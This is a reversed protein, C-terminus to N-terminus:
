NGSKLICISNNCSFYTQETDNIVFFIDVLDEPNSLFIVINYKETNTEKGKEIYDFQIFTEIPFDVNYLEAFIEDTTIVCCKGFRKFYDYKDAIINCYKLNGVQNTVRDEDNTAYFVSLTKNCYVYNGNSIYKFFFDDDAMRFLRENWGGIKKYLAISHCIACTDLKGKFVSYKTYDTEKVEQKDDIVKIYNSTIVNVNVNENIVDNFISLCNDLILDDDDLYKVWASDEKIQELAYNRAYCHGRNKNIYFYKIKESNYSNILEKNDKGNNKSCDDVIYIEYNDYQQELVSDIARKLKETRNYTPIIVYFKNKM